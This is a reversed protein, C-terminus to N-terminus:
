DLLIDLKHWSPDNAMYLRVDKIYEKRLLDRYYDLAYTIYDPNINFERTYTSDTGEINIDVEIKYIKM